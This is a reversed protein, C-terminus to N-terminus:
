RAAKDHRGRKGDQEDLFLVRTRRQQHHSRGTAFQALLSSNRIRHGTQSRLWLRHHEVQRHRQLQRTDAALALPFRWSSRRHSHRQLLAQDPVRFTERVRDRGARGDGGCASAAAIAAFIQRRHELRGGAARGCSLRRLHIPFRLLGGVYRPEQGFYGTAALGGVVRSRNRAGCGVDSEGGAHSGHFRAHSFRRGRARVPRQSLRARCRRLGM